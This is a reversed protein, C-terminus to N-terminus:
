RFIFNMHKVLDLYAKHLISEEVAHGRYFAIEESNTILRSHAYRLDGELM